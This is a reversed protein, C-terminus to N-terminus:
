HPGHTGVNPGRDAPVTDLSVASYSDERHGLPLPHSPAVRPEWVSMSVWLGYFVPQIRNSQCPPRTEGGLPEKTRRSLLSDTAGSEINGTM